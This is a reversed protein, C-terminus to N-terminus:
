QMFGKLGIWESIFILYFFIFSLKEEGLIDLPGEKKVASLSIEKGAVTFNSVPCLM